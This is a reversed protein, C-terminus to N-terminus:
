ERRLGELLDGLDDQVQEAQRVVIVRLPRFYVITGEGGNVDWSAPAITQQILDVLAQGDDDPGNVGVSQGGAAGVGFGARQQQGFQQALVAEDGNPLKAAPPKANARKEAPKDQKAIKRELEDAARRLRNRVTGRLEKREDRGLRTDADLERYIAVLERLAATKEDGKAGAHRRLAARAVARLEAPAREKVAANSDEKASTVAPTAGATSQSGLSSASEDPPTAALPAVALWVAIGLTSM